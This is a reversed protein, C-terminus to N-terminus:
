PLLELHYQNRVWEQVYELTHDRADFAAALKKGFKKRIVYEVFHSNDVTRITVARIKPEIM